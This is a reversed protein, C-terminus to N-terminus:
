PQSHISGLVEIPKQAPHGTTNKQQRPIRWIDEESKNGIWSASKGKRVAYWCLERVHNYHGRSIAHGGKDWVLMCRLEFGSDLLYNGTEITKVDAMWVYAVNGRHLSFTKSWDKYGDDGNIPGVARPGGLIKKRWKPDYSTGYPPDAIM